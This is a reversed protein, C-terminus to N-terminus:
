GGCTNVMQIKKAKKFKQHCAIIADLLLADTGVVVVVVFAGVILVVCNFDAALVNAGVCDGVVNLTDGVIVTVDGLLSPDTVVVFELVAAAAVVVVVQAVVLIIMM